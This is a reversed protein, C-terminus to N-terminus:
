KKNYQKIIISLVSLFLIYIISIKIYAKNIKNKKLLIEYKYDNKMYIEYLINVIIFNFLYIIVHFYSIYLFLNVLNNFSIVTTIKSLFYLWFSFIVVSFFAFLNNFKDVYQTM